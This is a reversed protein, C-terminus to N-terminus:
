FAYRDKQTRHKQVASYLDSSSLTTSVTNYRYHYRYRHCHHRYHYEALIGLISKEISLWVTSSFLLPLGSSYGVL